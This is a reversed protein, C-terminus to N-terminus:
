NYAHCGGGFGRQSGKRMYGPEYGQSQMYEHREKMEDFDEQSQVRRMVDFGLEERLVILDEYTGEEIVEEVQEHFTGREYGSQTVENREYFNQHAFVGTVLVVILIALISILKKMKIM